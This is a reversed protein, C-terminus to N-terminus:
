MFPAGVFHYNPAGSQARSVTYICSKALVIPSGSVGSSNEKVAGDSLSVTNTNDKDTLFSIGDSMGAWASASM